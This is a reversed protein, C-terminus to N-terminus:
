KKMWPPLQEKRSGYVGRDIKLSDNMLRVLEAFMIEAQEQKRRLSEMVAAGGHTTIVDVDVPRTQGFRWCRRVAQYWSEFSHTPFFTQHACRQLNLGFGFLKPKSVLVRPSESADTFWKVIEERDEEDTSGSVQRANPILKTLLDGEPNLNCWVISRDRGETLKAAMECREQITRRQEEQQDQLTAAGLDFLMGDAPRRAEVRHENISLPPLVFPGDDFGLDSPKRCSRAWSCVWRWFPEVAPGRLRYKTRGWGLYDKKTEQRFFRALVDSYGLEGLAESSTGLEDYDNPAATATSLLRYPLTRMFETVVAKTKGDFNKLIGSEDCAMGSFDAPNFLHLREYNAIVIRAGTPFKGDRSRVAEIGFKVSERLLQYGVAIPAAVLVPRNTHQVVNEAWVLLMPGKGMGCDAFVAARGRRISWDALPRQFNFLWDPLWLPDFGHMGRLQSKGRIFSSYDQGASPRSVPIATHNRSM